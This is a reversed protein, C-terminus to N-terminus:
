TWEENKFNFIDLKFGDPPQRTLLNDEININNEEACISDAFKSLTSGNGAFKEMCDRYRETNRIEEDQKISNQNNKSELEQSWVNKAEINNSLLIALVLTLTRKQFKLM